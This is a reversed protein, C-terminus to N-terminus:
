FFYFIPNKIYEINLIQLFTFFISKKKKNERCTEDNKEM